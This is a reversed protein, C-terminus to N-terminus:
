IGMEKALRLGAILAEYKVENNSTPFELRLAYNVKEGTLSELFVGAGSGNVNSSGDIKLSWVNSPCTPEDVKTCRALTSPADTTVGLVKTPYTFEAVFDVVAQGKVTTRQM